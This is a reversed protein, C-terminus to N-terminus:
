SGGPLALLLGRAQERIEFSPDKEGALRLLAPALGPLARSVEGLARRRDRLATALRDAVRRDECRLALSDQTLLLLEADALRAEALGKAERAEREFLALDEPFETKERQVSSIIEVAFRSAMATTCLQRALALSLTGQGPLDAALSRERAWLALQRATVAASFPQGRELRIQTWRWLIVPDPAQPDFAKRYEAAAAEPSGSLDLLVAIALAVEAGPGMAQLQELRTAVEYEAVPLPLARLVARLSDFAKQRVLPNRATRFAHLLPDIARVTVQQSLEEAAQWCDLPDPAVLAKELDEVSRLYNAPLSAQVLAQRDARLVREGEARALKSELDKLLRSLPSRQAEARAEDLLGSFLLGELKIEFLRAKAEERHAGASYDRLYRMLAFAGSARAQAFAQDDLQAQLEPRRPDEPHGAIARALAEPEGAAAAEALEARAMLQEAEDRHAGDPHDALFARLAAATGQERAANFRLGELLARAAASSALDGFEELYRKYALVTHLQRAREFELESLRSRAEEVGGSRPHERLFMRYAEVTDAKRARVYADTGCAAALCVSLALLATKKLPWRLVYTGM